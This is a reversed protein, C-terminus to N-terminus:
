QWSKKDNNKYYQNKYCNCVYSLINFILMYTFITSKKINHSHSDLIVFHQALMGAQVRKAVLRFSISSKNHSCGQKCRKNAVLLSAQLVNQGWTWFCCWLHTGKIARHTLAPYLVCVWLRKAGYSCSWSLSALIVSISVYIGCIKIIKYSLTQHGIYLM